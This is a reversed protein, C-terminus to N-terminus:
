VWPRESGVRSHRAANRGGGSPPPHGASSIIVSAVQAPSPHFNEDAIEKAIQEAIRWVAETVPIKRRETGAFGPRGGTSQLEEFLVKRVAAFGHPPDPDNFVPGSAHAGLAAALGDHGVRRTDSPRIQVKRTTSPTLNLRRM